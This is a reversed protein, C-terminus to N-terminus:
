ADRQIEIHTKNYKYAAYCKEANELYCSRENIIKDIDHKMENFM